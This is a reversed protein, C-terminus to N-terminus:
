RRRLGTVRHSRTQPRAGTTVADTSRIPRDSSGTTSRTLPDVVRPAGGRKRRPGPMDALMPEGVPLIESGNIVRWAAPGTATAASATVRAMATAPQTPDRTSPLPPYTVVPSDAPTGVAVSLAGALPMGAVGVGVGAAVAFEEGRGRGLGGPTSDPIGQRRREGHVGPGFGASPPALSGGRRHDGHRCLNGRDDVPIALREHRRAIGDLGEGTRHLVAARDDVRDPELRGAPDLRRDSRAARLGRDADQEGGGAREASDRSRDGPWGPRGVRTAMLRLDARPALDRRAPRPLRPGALASGVVKFYDRAIPERWWGEDVRWRNCVEVPERRGAWRVRGAPRRRRARRRDVPARPAAPDGVRRPFSPRFGGRLRLRDAPSALASRAAARRPRGARGARDSRRRLGARAPRAALRAPRGPGGPARVPPLQQGVAPAVEALELELRAVAAPPPERELRALLLREIAERTPPRSPSASSSPWRRGADRAPRLRPRADAPARGPGAAAGRALLQDALAGALRHLVFRLPELDEIPPELGLGLILREPARHPRFARSRRRRERRAHIREGEVGFRAVLASRPLEAVAGIRRLGFRALRARVDPDPTLLAAPLPGLFAAEGGPEVIWPRGPPEASGAATTAAFRTGAIGPRPAGPLIPRSHPRRAARRPGAGPGVAPRARRGPGRAPRVGSRDPRDHRRAGPQVRRAGRARARGRGRGADPEPDLFAAEPALRHARGSRADGAPRRARPGGPGRRHGTGDTWPQGGLVLPGTPFSGSSPRGDRAGARAPAPPPALLPPPTARHDTRPQLTTPPSDTSSRDRPPPLRDRGGGEAYLIRLEARRGPPGLRNRAVVVETRQGVVDRGSGSGRRRALELRLGASEAVRELGPRDSRAARPRRPPRGGPPRAGGAASGTAVLATPSRRGPRTTARRSPRAAAAPRRRPPRGLPRRALAGAISLARTSPHGARPRRALRPPRRPRRGRGPRPEPRSRAYAVISGAAQAEAALRLALTTKGSSADGRVSPSSRHAPGRGHRPDCGARRVRDPRGARRRGAPRPRGDPEDPLPVTALAGVVAGTGGLAEGGVRPAAEGWRTRLSALAASVDSSLATM